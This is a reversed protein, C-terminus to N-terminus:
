ITHSMVGMSIISFSIMQDDVGSWKASYNFATDRLDRNIFMFLSACCTYITVSLNMM